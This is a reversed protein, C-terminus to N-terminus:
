REEVQDKYKKVFCLLGIMSFVEFVISIIWLISYSAYEIIFGLGSTVAIGMIARISSIASYYSARHEGAIYDNQWIAIAGESISLGIDFLIFAGISVYVNSPILLLIFSLAVIGKGIYTTTFRQFYKVFFETIFSGFMMAFMLGVFVISVYKEEVNYINLLYLQWCLIFVSYPVYEMMESFVILRMRRDKFFSKTFSVMVKGFNEGMTKGKNDEYCLSFVIGTVIAAIGGVLIPIKVSYAIMVTAALASIISVASVTGSMRPLLREREDVSKYKVLLDYFWAQPSGSFMAIGIALLGYAVFYVIINQFAVMLILAFGYIVLSLGATKKRGFYDSIVGSPYDFILLIAEHFGLLVGILKVSMIENLLMIYAAGYLKDAFSFLSMIITYFIAFRIVKSNKKRERMVM